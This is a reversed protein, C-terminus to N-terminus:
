EREWHASTLRLAIILVGIGSASDASDFAQEGLIGDNGDVPFSARAGIESSLKDLGPERPALGGDGEFFSDLNGSPGLM